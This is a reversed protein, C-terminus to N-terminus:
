RELHSEFAVARLLVHLDLRAGDLGRYILRMEELSSEMVSFEGEAGRLSRLDDIATLKAEAHREKASTYEDGVRVPQRSKAALSRDFADDYTDRLANRRLLSALRRRITRALLAEIRDLRGRVEVLAAQLDAVSAHPGPLEVARLRRAEDLTDLIAPTQQTVTM